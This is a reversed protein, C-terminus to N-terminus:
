LTFGRESAPISDDEYSFPFQEPDVDPFEEDMLDNLDKPQPAQDLEDENDIFYPKSNHTNNM